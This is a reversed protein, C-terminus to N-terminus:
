EVSSFFVFEIFLIHHSFYNQTLLYFVFQQTLSDCKVIKGEAIQAKFEALRLVESTNNQQSRARRYLLWANVVAMDLFHFFLRHYWKKSRITIRYLGMLSDLLDVGGM